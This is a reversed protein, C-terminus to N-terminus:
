EDSDGPCALEDGAREAADDPFEDLAAHEIVVDLFADVIERTTDKSRVNSGQQQHTERILRDYALSDNNRLEESEAAFKSCAAAARFAATQRVRQGLEEDTLDDLPDTM